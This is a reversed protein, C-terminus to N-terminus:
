AMCFRSDILGVTGVSGSTSHAELLSRCRLTNFTLPSFSNSISAYQKEVDTNRELSFIRFFSDNFLAM